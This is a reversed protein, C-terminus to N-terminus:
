SVSTLVCVQLHTRGIKVIDKFDKAKSDLAKRLKEMAPLLKKNIELAASIHM